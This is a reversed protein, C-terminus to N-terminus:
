AGGKKVKSITVFDYTIYENTEDISIDEISYTDKGIQVKMSEELKPNHRVAIIKSDALTTEALMITQTLTRKVPAYHLTFQKVFTPIYAKSFKNQVSKVSGFDATKAMQSPTYKTAM